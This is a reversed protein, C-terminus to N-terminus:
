FISLSDEIIDYRLYREAPDYGVIWNKLSSHFLDTLNRCAVEYLLYHLIPARKTAEEWGGYSAPVLNIKRLVFRITNELHTNGMDRPLLREGKEPYWYLGANM